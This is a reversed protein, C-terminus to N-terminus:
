KLQNHSSQWLLLSLFNGGADSSLLVFTEYIGCDHYGTFPDATLIKCFNNLCSINVVTLSFATTCLILTSMMAQVLLATSFTERILEIYEEIKMQFHICNILEDYNKKEDESRNPSLKDNGISQLRDSLVKLFWAAYCMPLLTLVDISVVIVSCYMADFTQYIASIWYNFSTNMDYPFVMKMPLQYVSMFAGTTITAVAAAIEGNFIKNITGIRKKLETDEPCSKLLEETMRIIDYIQTSKAFVNLSKCCLAIYTPLLSMLSAFDDITEYEFLYAIGMTLGLDIIFVHMLTGYVIYAKSSENDMWMGLVKLIRLIANFPSDERIRM